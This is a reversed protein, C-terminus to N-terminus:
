HSSQSPLPDRVTAREVADTPMTMRRMIRGVENDVLFRAHKLMAPLGNVGVTAQPSTDSEPDGAGAPAADPAAIVRRPKPGGAFSKARVAGERVSSDLPELRFQTVAAYYIAFRREYPLLELCAWAAMGVAQNAPLLLSSPFATDRLAAEAHVFADSTPVHTLM